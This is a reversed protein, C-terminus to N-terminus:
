SLNRRVEVLLGLFSGSAVIVALLALVAFTTAVRNPEDLVLHAAAAGAVVLPADRPVSRVVNVAPKPKAAVPARTARRAASAHRAARAAPKSVQRTPKRAVSSSPPVYRPAQVVPASRHVVPPASQVARPPGVPAPDPTPVGGAGPTPDPAPAANAAPVVGGAVFVLATYGLVGWRRLLSSPRGLV